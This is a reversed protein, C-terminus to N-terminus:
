TRSFVRKAQETSPVISEDDTEGWGPSRFFYCLRASIRGLIFAMVPKLIQTPPQSTNFATINAPQHQPATPRHQCISEESPRDITPATSNRIRGIAWGMTARPQRNWNFDRRVAAGRKGCAKCVFQPEIDSLRVDDSWGDGRRRDLPAAVKSFFQFATKHNRALMKPNPATRIQM